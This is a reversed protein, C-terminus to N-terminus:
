EIFEKFILDVLNGILTACLYWLFDKLKLKRM